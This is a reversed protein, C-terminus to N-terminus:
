GPLPIQASPVLFPFFCKAAPTYSVLIPKYSPWSSCRSPAPGMPRRRHKCCLCRYWFVTSCPVARVARAAILAPWCARSFFCTLLCLKSACSFLLSAENLARDYFAVGLKKSHFVCAMYVTSGQQAASDSEDQTDSPALQQVASAM